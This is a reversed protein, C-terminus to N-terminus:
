ASRGARLETPVVLEGAELRPKEIRELLLRAGERGMRVKDVRVTTLLENRLAEPLGDFGGVAVEDPVALGARELARLAALATADNACVLADPRARELLELAAAEDAGGSPVANPDLGAARLASNFGRRRAQFNPNSLDESLFAFRRRGLSLLHETAQRMGAENDTSVSSLGPLWRDVLVLPTIAAIDYLVAPDIECGIVILGDARREAALQVLDRGRKLSTILLHLDAAELEAELGGLVEAYFPDLFVPTHLATIAVAINGTRGRVLGRAAASAQYGLSAAVERVRDRTAPAVESADNLSRSVTAIGVGSM